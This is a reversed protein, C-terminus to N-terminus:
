GYIKVQYDYLKCGYSVEKGRGYEYITFLDNGTDNVYHYFTVKDNCSIGVQGDAFIVLADGRVKGYYTLDNYNISQAPVINPAHFERHISLDIVDNDIVRLWVNDSGSTLKYEYWNWNGADYKILGEVEYMKDDILLSNGRSITFFSNVQNNNQEEVKLADRSRAINKIRKFIGM